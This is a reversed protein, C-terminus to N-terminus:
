AGIALLPDGQNIALSSVLFLVCGDAPAVVPQLVRGEYDTVRGLAQGAKVADGVSVQPYYFGEHESRLWIFNELVETPLPEPAPGDIMNLRRMLRNLGTIHLDVDAQKWIGQGGAETLIAPIGADAAASFASGKSGSRVIYRIGFVQAIELSAQDVQSNGTRYYITFPTLAEILDGGHMDVYYDGLKIVNEFLWYAIQESASGDAKGPFVRNLNVGDLPCVYISRARFAPSNAIPAIIVRGRLGAPDLTQGVHLAAAISAYEAGHVGGTVALTVGPEQGNIAFIPVGVRHGAAVIEQVASAKSGPAVSLTGITLERATM